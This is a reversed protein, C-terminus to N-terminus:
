ALRWQLGRVSGDGRGAVPAGLGRAERACAPRGLNDIRRNVDGLSTALPPRGLRAVTRVSLRLGAAPMASVIRLAPLTDDFAQSTTQDIPLAVAHPTPAPVSGAHIARTEFQM